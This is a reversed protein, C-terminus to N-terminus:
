LKDSILNDFYEITKQLGEKLEVKPKWKLIENAMSIDPKRQKPDDSPLPQFIIKSSSNTLEIVLEALERM